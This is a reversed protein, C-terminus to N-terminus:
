MVPKLTQIFCSELTHLKFENRARAVISFRDESYNAACDPKDLLHNGIVFFYSKEQKEGGAM